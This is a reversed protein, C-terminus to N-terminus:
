IVPLDSKRIKNSTKHSYFRRDGLKREKYDIVKFHTEGRVGWVFFVRQAEPICHNEKSVVAGNRRGQDLGCNHSSSGTNTSTHMCTHTTIQAVLLCLIIRLLLARQSIVDSHNIALTGLKIVLGNWALPNMTKINNGHCHSCVAFSGKYYVSGQLIRQRNDQVPLRHLKNM